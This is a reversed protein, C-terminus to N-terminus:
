SEKFISCKHASLGLEKLVIHLEDANAKYPGYLRYNEYKEENFVANNDGINIM